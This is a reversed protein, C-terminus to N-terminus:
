LAIPDANPNTSKESSSEKTLWKETIGAYGARGIYHPNRNKRQAARGKESREQFKPDRRQKVFEEWDEKSIGYKDCPDDNLVEDVEEEELEEEEEVEEDCEKISRKKRKKYIYDRTLRTKFGNYRSGVIKLIVQRKCDDKINFKKKVHLWITEKKGEPVNPWAGYTIKIGRAVIGIETAFSVKGPGVPNDFEDFDIHKPKETDEKKKNKIRTTPGRAKNKKKPPPKQLSSAECINDEEEM